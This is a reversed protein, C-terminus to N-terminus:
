RIKVCKNEKFATDKLDRYEERDQSSVFKDADEDGVTQDLPLSVALFLSYFLLCLISSRTSERGEGHAKLEGSYTCFKRGAQNILM